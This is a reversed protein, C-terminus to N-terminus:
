VNESWEFNSVAYCELCMGDLCVRLLGVFSQGELDSM